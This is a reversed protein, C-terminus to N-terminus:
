EPWFKKQLNGDQDRIFKGNSDIKFIEKNAFKDVIEYFDEKSLEMDLLFEDITKYDMEESDGIYFTTELDSDIPSMESQYDLQDKIWKEFYIANTLSKILDFDEELEGNALVDDPEFLLRIRFLSSSIAPAIDNSRMAKEEQKELLTYFSQFFKIDIMENM